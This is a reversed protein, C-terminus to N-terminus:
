YGNELFKLFLDWSRFKKHIDGQKMKSRNVIDEWALYSPKNNSVDYDRGYILNFQSFFNSENLPMDKMSNFVPISVMCLFGKTESLWHTENTMHMTKIEDVTYGNIFANNVKVPKHNVYIVTNKNVEKEVGLYEEFESWTRFYNDFTSQALYRNYLKIKKFEWFEYEDFFLLNNLIPMLVECLLDKDLAKWDVAHSNNKKPCKSLNKDVTDNNYFRKYVFVNSNALKIKSTDEVVDSVVQLGNSEKSVVTKNDKKQKQNQIETDYYFDYDAYLKNKASMFEIVSCGKTHSGLILDNHTNITKTLLDFFTDLKGIAKIKYIKKSQLLYYNETKEDLKQSELYSVWIKATELHRM